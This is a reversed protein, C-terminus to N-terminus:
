INRKLVYDQLIEIVRVCIYGCIYIIISEIIKGFFYYNAM